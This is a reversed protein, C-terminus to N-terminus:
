NQEGSRFPAGSPRAGGFGSAKSGGIGGFAGSPQAGGGVAGGFGSAQAGAFGSPQAGGARTLTQFGSPAASAEPQKSDSGVFSVGSPLAGGFGQGDPGGTPVPFSGSLVSPFGSQSGAQGPGGANFVGTGSPFAAAATGLPIPAGTVSPAVQQEQAAVLSLLISALLATIKVM